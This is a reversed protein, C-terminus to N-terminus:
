GMQVKRGPECCEHTSSPPRKEPTRSEMSKQFVDRGKATITEAGAQIAIAFAALIIVALIAVMTESEDERSRERMRVSIM